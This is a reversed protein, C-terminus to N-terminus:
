SNKQEEVVPAPEDNNIVKYGTIESDIKIAM